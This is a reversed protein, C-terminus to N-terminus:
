GYEIDAWYVKIYSEMRRSTYKRKVIRGVGEHGPVHTEMPTEGNINDVDSHCFGSVELKVLVEDASPEPIPIDDRIVLKAGHSPRELWAATQTTPNAAM